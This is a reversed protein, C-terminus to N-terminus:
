SLRVIVFSYKKLAEWIKKAFFIFSSFVTLSPLTKRELQNRRIKVISFWTLRNASIVFLYFYFQSRVSLLYLGMEWRRGHVRGWLINIDNIQKRLLLMFHLVLQVKEKKKLERFCFREVEEIKFMINAISDFFLCIIKILDSVLSSIFKKNIECWLYRSTTQAM